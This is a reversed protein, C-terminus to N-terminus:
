TVPPSSSNPSAPVAALWARAQALDQQMAQVLENLSNFQLEDRLKHLYEVRVLKGYANGQWDFVFVELLPRGNAEVTPRRGLSAVGYRTQDDLGSIRVVLIGTLAPPGAPLRLNLTPFGLNRGLKAGHIVRAEHGPHRGLLRAALPLDGLALASRVASSSIRHSELCVDDIARVADLGLKGVYSQLLAVDGQRKAGFRFDAGIFLERAGLGRLLGDEIFRQAECQAMARNFRALILQKIGAECLLRVRERLGTLAAPVADVQGRQEAFWRRPHPEFSLVAPTLGRERARDVLQDLLARHGLHLGDFNGITVVTQQRLVASQLGPMGRVLHLAPLLSTSAPPTFLM